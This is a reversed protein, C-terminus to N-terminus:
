TRGRARLFRWGAFALVLVLAGLMALHDPETVLHHLGQALTMGEHEGPHAFAPVAAMLAGSLAALGAIGSTRKGSM